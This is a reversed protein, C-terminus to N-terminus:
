GVFPLAAVEAAVPGDSSQVVVPTGPDSFARRVIALAVPRDL